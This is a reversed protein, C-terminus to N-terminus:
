VIMNGVTVFDQFDNTLATKPLNNSSQVMHGMFVHRDFDDPVLSPKVMLGKYFHSNQVMQSLLVFVAAVIHNVHQLVKIEPIM